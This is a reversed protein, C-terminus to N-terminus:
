CRSGAGSRPRERSRRRTSRRRRLPPGDAPPRRAPSLEFLILRDDRRLCRFQATVHRAFGSYHDLWWASWGAIALLTAGGRRQREIELIAEDDGAPKGWYEGDREFFRLVTRGAVAAPDLRRDDIMVCTSGAPLTRELLEEMECTERRDLEGGPVPTNVVIAALGRAFGPLARVEIADGFRLTWDALAAREQDRDADDLLVVTGARAFSMAQYLVGGRGGLASPPGDIVILDAKEWVETEPPLHYVPREEGAIWRLVLPALVFDVRRELGAAGLLRRSLELFAPDHEISWMRWDDGMPACASTLALSSIGSGFEVIRRPRLGEVLAICFRLADEDLSWDSRGAIVAADLDVKASAALAQDLARHADNRSRPM